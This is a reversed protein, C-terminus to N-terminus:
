GASAGARSSAAAGAGAADVLTTTVCCTGLTANFFTVFLQASMLSVGVGAAAAKAAAVLVLQASIISVGVGAAATAAAAVLLFHASMLATADGIPNIAIGDGVAARAGTTTDIADATAAAGATDAAGAAVNNLLVRGSSSGLQHQLGPCKWDCSSCINRRGNEADHLGFASLRTPIRCCFLAPMHCCCGM